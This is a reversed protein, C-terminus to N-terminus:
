SVRAEGTQRTYVYARALMYNLAVDRDKLEPHEKAVM